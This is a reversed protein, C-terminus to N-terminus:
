RPTVKEPYIGCSKCYYKDTEKIVMKPCNDCSMYWWQINEQLRDVTAIATFVFDQFCDLNANPYPHLILDCIYISYPEM